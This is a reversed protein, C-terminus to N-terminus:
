PKRGDVVNVNVVTPAPVDGEDGGTFVGLHKGLLELSRNAGSSDFQWVGEGQEDTVQVHAKEERDWRMVPVRQMCREAVEKLGMVVFDQTVGKEAEMRRTREKIREGVYAQIDARTLLDSASRRAAAESSKPYVKLYARTANLEPDSLYENVFEQHRPRM